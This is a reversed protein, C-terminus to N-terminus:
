RTAGKWLDPQVPADKYTVCPCKKKHCRAIKAGAWLHDVVLHGCQCRRMPPEDYSM